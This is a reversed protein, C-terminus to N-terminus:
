KAKDSTKGLHDATKKIAAEYEDVLKEASAKSGDYNFSEIDNAYNVLSNEKSSLNKVDVKGNEQHYIEWGGGDNNDQRRILYDSANLGDEKAYDMKILDLISDKVEGREKNLEEAVEQKEADTTAESALALLDGLGDVIPEKESDIDVDYVDEIQKSFSDYHELQTAKAKMNMKIMAGSMSVLGITLGIAAVRDWNIEKITGKIVEKNLKM